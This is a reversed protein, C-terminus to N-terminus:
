KNRALCEPCTVKMQDYTLSQYNFNAEMADFIKCKAHYYRDLGTIRVLHHVIPEQWTSPDTRNYPEPEPYNHTSGM